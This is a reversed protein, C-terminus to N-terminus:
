SGLFAAVANFNVILAVGGVLPVYWARRGLAYLMWGIVLAAAFIVFPGGVAFGMGTNFAGESRTTDLGAYSLFRGLLSAVFAGVLLAVSLLWFAVYESAPFRHQAKAESM